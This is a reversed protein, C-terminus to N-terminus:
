EERVDKVTTGYSLLGVEVLEDYSLWCVWPSM